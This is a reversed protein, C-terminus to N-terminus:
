TAATPGIRAHFEAAVRWAAFAFACQAALNLIEGFLQSWVSQPALIWLAIMGAVGAVNCVFLGAAMHLHRRLGLSAAAFCTSASGVYALGFLVLKWAEYEVTKNLYYAAFLALWSAATPLIWPDRAVLRGSVAARARLLAAAMLTFGPGGFVFFSASFVPIAEGSIALDLNSIARALAGIMVLLFGAMAMRRSRPDLREVLQALFFLGLSLFFVPAFDLLALAIAIYM